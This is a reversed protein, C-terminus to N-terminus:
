TAMVARARAKTDFSCLLTSALQCRALYLRLPQPIVCGKFKVTARRRKIAILRTTVSLANDIILRPFDNPSFAYGVFQHFRHVHTGTKEQVLNNLEFPIPLDRSTRFKPRRPPERMFPQNIRTAFLVSLPHPPPSGLLHQEKPLHRYERFHWKKCNRQNRGCGRRLM